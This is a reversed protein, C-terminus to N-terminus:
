VQGEFIFMLSEILHRTHALYPIALTESRGVICHLLLLVPAANNASIYIM